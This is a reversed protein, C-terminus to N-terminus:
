DDDNADELFDAFENATSRFSFSEHLKYYNQPDVVNYFAEKALILRNSDFSLCKMMDAIQKTTFSTTNKQMRFFKLKDDDFTQNKFMRFFSSFNNYNMTGRGYANNWVDNWRRGYYVERANNLDIEELLFLGRQSFFDLVLRTNDRPTITVCYILSRGYWINLQQTKAYVDFFRFMGTSSSIEQDGLSITFRGMEPIRIFVEAYGADYTMEWRYNYSTNMGRDIAVDRRNENKLWRGASGIEQANGAVTAFLLLLLSIKQM